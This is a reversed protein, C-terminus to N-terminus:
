AVGGSARRGSQDNLEELMSLPGLQTLVHGGPYTTARHRYPTTRPPAFRLALARLRLGRRVGRVLWAPQAPLGLAHRLQEDMLAITIRRVFPRLPLPAVARAISITAEALATNAPDPAFHETEYDVLLELYGAYTSPLGKIGMLEGFRTTVRAIAVLEHPDLQRWGFESIWRVPGVITTALVYAFEDDPIDYHGHIRNLRRVAAHSRPSDIGEITSEEGILVTDDYRKIGDHEFEGTEHLLRSISPIGYDRLFAIGTGQVFDWPFDHRSTLALIEDHDVDPDLLRIRRLNDYRQPHALRQAIRQRLRLVGM